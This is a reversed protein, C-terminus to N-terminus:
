IAAPRRLSAVTGPEYGLENLIADTHVGIEPIPAM